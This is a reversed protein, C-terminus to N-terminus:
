RPREIRVKQMNGCKFCKFSTNLNNSIATSTSGPAVHGCQECKNKYKVISGQEGLIVAGSIAVAM